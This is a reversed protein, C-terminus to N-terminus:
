RIRHSEKEPIILVSLHQIQRTIILWINERIDDLTLNILHLYNISKVIM